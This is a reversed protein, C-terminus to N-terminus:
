TYMTMLNSSIMREEFFCFGNIPVEPCHRASQSLLDAISHLEHGQLNGELM